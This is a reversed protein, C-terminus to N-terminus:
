ENVVENRRTAHADLLSPIVNMVFSSSCRNVGIVESKEGSTDATFALIIEFRCEQHEELTSVLKLVEDLKERLELEKEELESM